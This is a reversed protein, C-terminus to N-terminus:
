MNVNPQIRYTWRDHSRVFNWDTLTDVSCGIIYAEENSAIHKKRAYITEPTAQYEPSIVIETPEMFQKKMNEWTLSHHKGGAGKYGIFTTYKFADTYPDFPEKDKDMRVEHSCNKIQLQEVEGILKTM